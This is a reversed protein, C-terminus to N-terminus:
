FVAPASIQGRNRRVSGRLVRYARPNQIVRHVSSLLEQRFAEGLSPQQEEYWNSIALLDDWFAARFRATKRNM